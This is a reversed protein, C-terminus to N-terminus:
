AGTETRQDQHRTVQPKGTVPDWEIEADEVLLAQLISDLGVEEKHDTPEGDTPAENEM